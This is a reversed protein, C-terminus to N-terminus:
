ISSFLSLNACNCSLKQFNNSLDLSDCDDEDELLANTDNTPISGGGGGGVTTQSGFVELGDEEIKKPQTKISFKPTSNHTHYHSHNGTLNALPIRFIRFPRSKEPSQHENNHHNNNSVLNNVYQNLTKNNNIPSKLLRSRTPSHHSNNVKPSNPPVCPEINHKVGVINNTCSDGCSNSKSIFRKPDDLISRDKPKQLSRARQISPLQECRPPIPLFKDEANILLSQEEVTDPRSYVKLYDRTRETTTNNDDMNSNQAESKEIKHKIELIRENSFENIRSPRRQNPEQIQENEVLGRIRLDKPIFEPATTAFYIDRKSTILHLDAMTANHVLNGNVLLRIEMSDATFGIIYPFACVISTPSTNWHFDFESTKNEEQLKHFHCTDTHSFSFLVIIRYLEIKSHKYILYTFIVPSCVITVYCCNLRKVMM